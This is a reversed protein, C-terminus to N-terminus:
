VHRAELLSFLTVPNSATYNRLLVVFFCEEALVDLFAKKYSILILFCFIILFFSQTLAFNGGGGGVPIFATTATNKRKYVTILNSSEVLKYNKELQKFIYGLLNLREARWLSEEHLYGVIPFNAPIIQLAHNHSIGNEVFLYTPSATKISSFVMKLEENTTLYWQLDIFPMRNYTRSLMPLFNDYQSLLYIGDNTKYKDILAVSDAFATPDMTSLFDTGPLDWQYLKHTQFYTTIQQRSEDFTLQARTIIGLSVILCVACLVNQIKRPLKKQFIFVALLIQLTFISSMACFHYFGASRLYYLFAGQAYFTMFLLAYLLPDHTKWKWFLLAYCLAIYILFNTINSNHFPFGLLGSFFYSFVPDPGLSTYKVTLVSGIFLVIFSIIDFRVKKTTYQSIIKVFLCGLVSLTTFIGFHTNIGISLWTSTLIGVMYLKRQTKIYGFLCLLPLLYIGYRAPNTGPGLYLYLYTQSLWGATILIGGLLVYWRNRMLIWLTVLFTCFYILYCSYYLHVYRTYTIEGTKSLIFGLGVTHLLGYQMFIESLPRGLSFQYAAGFLHNHHHLFGRSLIQWNYQFASRKLLDLNQPSTLSHLVNERDLSFQQNLAYLQAYDTPNLKTKLITWTWPPLPEALCLKNPQTHFIYRNLEDDDISLPITFQSYNEQSYICYSPNQLADLTYLKTHLVDQTSFQSGSAPIVTSPIDFFENGVYLPNFIFSGFLTGVRFLLGLFLLTFLCSLLHKKFLTNNVIRYVPLLFLFLLLIKIWAYPAHFSFITLFIGWTIQTIANVTNSFYRLIGLFRSFRVICVFGGMIFFGLPILLAYAILKAQTEHFYFITGPLPHLPATSLLSSISLTAYSLTLFFLIAYVFLLLIAHQSLWKNMTLKINIFTKSM